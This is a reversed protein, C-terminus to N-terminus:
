AERGNMAQNDLIKCTTCYFSATSFSLLKCIQTVGYGNSIEIREIEINVQTNLLLMM